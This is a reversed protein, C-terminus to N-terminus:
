STRTRVARQALAASAAASASARHRRRRSCERLEGVLECPAGTFATRGQDLQQERERRQVSRAAGPRVRHRGRGLLQRALKRRQTALQGTRRPRLSLQELELEPRGFPRQNQQQTVVVRDPGRSGRRAPRRSRPRSLDRPGAHEVHAAADGRRQRRELQQPGLTERGAGHQQQGGVLLRATRGRLPSDDLEAALRATHEHELRRKRSSAQLGRAASPGGVAQLDATAPRMGTQLGLPADARDILQAVRQEPQACQSIRRSARREVGAHDAASRQWVHHGGFSVRQDIQAHARRGLLLSDIAREGRELRDL